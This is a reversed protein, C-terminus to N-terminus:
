EWEDRPLMVYLTETEKGEWGLDSGGLQVYPTEIGNYLYVGKETVHYWGSSDPINVPLKDTITSAFDPHIMITYGPSFFAVHPQPDIVGAPITDIKGSIYVPQYGCNGYPCDIEKQCSVLLILFILYKM